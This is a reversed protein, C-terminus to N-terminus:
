LRSIPLDLGAVIARSMVTHCQTGGPLITALAVQVGAGHSDAELCALVEPVFNEPIGKTFVDM